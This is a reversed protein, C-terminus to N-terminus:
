GERKWMSGEVPRSILAPVRPGCREPAGRMPTTLGALGRASVALPRKPPPGADVLANFTPGAFVSHHLDREVPRAGDLLRARFWGWM